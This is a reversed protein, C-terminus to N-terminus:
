SGITCPLIYKTGTLVGNTGQQYEKNMSCCMKYRSLRKYKTFFRRYMTSNWKYNMSYMKYRNSCWNVHNSVKTGVLVCISGSPYRIYRDSCWNFHIQIRWLPGNTGQLVGIQVENFPNKINHPMKQVYYFVKQVHYLVEYLM